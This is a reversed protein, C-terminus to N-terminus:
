LLMQSPEGHWSIAVSKRARSIAVYLLSREGQELERKEISTPAINLVYSNPINKDSAGALIMHDFELGKIGHMSSISIPSILADESISIKSTTIGIAELGTKYKEILKNTRLAV